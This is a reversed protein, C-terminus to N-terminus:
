APNLAGIPRAEGEAARRAELSAHQQEILRRRATIEAERRMITAPAPPTAGARRPRAKKPRKPSPM